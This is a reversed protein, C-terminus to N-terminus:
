KLVSDSFDSFQNSFPIRVKEAGRNIWQEANEATIGGGIQLGDLFNALSFVKLLIFIKYFTRRWTKLALEATDDCSPGLKIVHAGTVANDRYLTAFYDSSHTSVFNTRLLEGNTDQESLTGGVIQKVQGEHIDICGRFRTM